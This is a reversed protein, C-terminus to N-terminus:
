NQIAPGYNAVRGNAQVTLSHFRVPGFSCLCLDLGKRIQLSHDMNLTSVLM